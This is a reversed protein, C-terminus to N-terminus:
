RRINRESAQFRRVVLAAVKRGKFAQAQFMLKVVDNQRLPRSYDCLTTKMVCELSHVFFHLNLCSTELYREYAGTGVRWLDVAIFGWQKECGQEPRDVNARLM